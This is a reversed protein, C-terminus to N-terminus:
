KGPPGVMLVGKWPRRIGKFYDPMWMPLVVAEELLRKAEHLDAIDDWRINPNKQLIDRELMDVLDVDAHSSPEFKKEEEEKPTEDGNGAEGDGKGEKDGATGPKKTGSVKANGFRSKVDSPPGLGKRDKSSSPKVASSKRNSDIKGKVNRQNKASVQSQGPIVPPGFIDPDRYFDPHEPNQRTQGFWHIDKTPSEDVM